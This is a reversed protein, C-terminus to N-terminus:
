SLRIFDLSSVDFYFILGGSDSQRIYLKSPKQLFIFGADEFVKFLKKDASRRLDIRIVQVNALGTKCRSLSFIFYENLATKIADPWKRFFM